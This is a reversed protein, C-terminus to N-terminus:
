DTQCEKPSGSLVLCATKLERELSLYWLRINHWDAGSILVYEKGDMSTVRAEDNLVPKVPITLRYSPPATGILTCSTKLLIIVPLLLILFKGISHLM